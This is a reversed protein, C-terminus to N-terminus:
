QNDYLFVEQQLQIADFGLSTSCIHRRYTAPGSLLQCALTHTSSALHIQPTSCTLFEEVM